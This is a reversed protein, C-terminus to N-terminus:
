EETLTKAQSYETVWKPVGRRYIVQIPTAFSGPYVEIPTNLAKFIAAWCAQLEQIRGAVIGLEDITTDPEMSVITGSIDNSSLLNSMKPGTDVIQEALRSMYNALEVYEALASKPMTNEEKSYTIESEFNSRQKYLEFILEPLSGAKIEGESWYATWDTGTDVITIM